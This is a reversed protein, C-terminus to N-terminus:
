GISELDAEGTDLQKTEYEYHSKNKYKYFEPVMKNEIRIVIGEDAGTGGRSLMAPQDRYVRHGDLGQGIWEIRLDKENFDEIDLEGATTRILEPTHRIGARECFARVQDWSLDVMDGDETVVAVRYVFLEMEGPQCEYTHGKQIPAGDRTFGVLEGYVVFNKPIVEGWHTLAETWVDTGYFHAQNPNNPDKIVRKSGAVLDYDHDKVAIGLKQALRDKWTLQRKVVTNALRVSTGHLKQTVIVPTNPDIGERERMWQGTEYHAPLYTETVRKFAKAQQQEGRTLGAQKQEVVYKECLTHGGITDFVDGERLTVSSVDGFCLISDIPLVLGNSITGRLKISRVRRNKGIYGKGDPNLNMEPSSYLSNFRCFYHDLQVEAPFLLAAEGVRDKWSADVIATIGLIDITYLFDSNEVKNLEPVKIVTASYNRSGKIEITM